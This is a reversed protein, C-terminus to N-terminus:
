NISHSVIYNQTWDVGSQTIAEGHVRIGLNVLALYPYIIIDM